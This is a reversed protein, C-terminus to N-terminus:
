GLEFGTQDNTNDSVISGKISATNKNTMPAGENHIWNTVGAPRTLVYEAHILSAARVLYLNTAALSSFTPAALITIQSGFESRIVASSAGSFTSSSISVRSSRAWVQNSANGSCVLSACSVTAGDLAALGHATNSACTLTGTFAVAATLVSVGIAFQSLTLNSVGRFGGTFSLGVTNATLNGNITMDSLHCGSTGSPGVIGSCGNFQLTTSGVGAGAISVLRNFNSPIVLTSSSTYTGAAISITLSAALMAGSAFSVASAPSPFRGGAAVSLTTAQLVMALRWQSGSNSTPDFGSHSSAISRYLNGDSGLVLDNLGYIADSRWAPISVPLVIAASEIEGAAGFRAYNGSVSGALRLKGVEFTKVGTVSQDTTRTLYDTIQPSVAFTTPFRM